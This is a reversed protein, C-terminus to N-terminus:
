NVGQFVWHYGDGTAAHVNGRRDKRSGYGLIWQVSGEAVSFHGTDHWGWINHYELQLHISGRYPNAYVEALTGHEEIVVSDGTRNTRCYTFDYAFDCYFSQFDGATLTATARTDQRDGSQRPPADQPAQGRARVADVRRQAAVLQAPAAAGAALAEYLDIMDMQQLDHFRASPPLTGQPGHGSVMMEGPAVEYFQICTGDGQDITALRRARPADPDVDSPRQHTHPCAGRGAASPIGPAVAVSCVLGLLSLLVATHRRRVLWAGCWTNSRLVSWPSQPSYTTHM